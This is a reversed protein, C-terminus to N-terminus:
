SARGLEKLIKAYKGWQYGVFYVTMLSGVFWSIFETETM